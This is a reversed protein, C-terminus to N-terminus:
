TGCASSASRRCSTITSSARYRDRTSKALLPMTIPIYTDSVYKSLETAGGLSELGQNLPRLLEAAIKVVERQPMSAPALKAWIKKRAPKGDTFEDRRHNSAGGNGVGSLSPDQFRRRAMREFDGRLPVGSNAEPALMAGARLDTAKPNDSPKM